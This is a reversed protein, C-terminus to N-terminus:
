EPRDGLPFGRHRHAGEVRAGVAAGERQQGHRRVDDLRAEDVVAREGHFRHASRRLRRFRWAQDPRPPVDVLAVSWENTATVDAEGTGRVASTTITPPPMM